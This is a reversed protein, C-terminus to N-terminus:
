RIVSTGKSIELFKEEAGEEKNKDPHYKLALNRFAKKIEKKSADRKVGLISYYDKAADVSLIFSTSHVTAFLFLFTTLDM